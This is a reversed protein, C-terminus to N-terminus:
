GRIFDAIVTPTSTDFGVIDLMGADDPDAVSYESAVTAEFISKAKHNLKQRYQTLAQVPHMKGAWTENDTITIFADFLLRNDYAWSMPLSCDTAGFTMRYTKEVVDDLRMNPSINLPVFRDSFAMIEHEPETKATILAMAAAVQSSTLTGNAQFPAMMSGSVDIALLIRRNCPEVNDFAMYFAADLADVIAQVPRWSLHGRFGSGSSYTVLANLIAIPHLRSAHIYERDSLKNVITKTASDLNSTTLGVSAMNNLSRVMAGLPMHDLLAEWIAPNKLMETPVVERPLHHEVILACAEKISAEKIKAVALIIDPVNDRVVGKTVYHYIDDHAKDQPVPKALRLLDRHSWGDRQQYKVVQYALADPDKDQYWQAIGERMLRGWGRMNQAYQVFHFIHTGIRAVKPLLDYLARRRVPRTGMSAAMALAFLVPDNSPARGNVSIDLIRDLVKDGNEKLCRRVCDANEFTLKQANVYYTGADSGIILFRELRKWDDIKWGYGGANNMVQNSGFLRNNQPTNRPNFSWM